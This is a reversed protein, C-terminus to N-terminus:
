LAELGLVVCCNCLSLLPAELVIPNAEKALCGFAWLAFWSSACSNQDLLAKVQAKEAWSHHGVVTKSCGSNFDRAPAKHQTARYVELYACAEAGGVQLNKNSHSTGKVLVPANSYTSALKLM